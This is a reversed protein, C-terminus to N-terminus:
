STSGTKQPLQILEITRGDPDLAYLVQAEGWVPGADGLDVPTSRVTAGRALLKTRTAAIDEVRIAFHTHGPDCSRQDLRQGAPALYQILELVHGSPFALDAIKTHAGELGTVTEVDGGHSEARELVLCGFLDCYFAISADLDGVTIGVHHLGIM